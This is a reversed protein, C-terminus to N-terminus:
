SFEHRRPLSYWLGDLWELDKEIMELSTSKDAQRGFTMTGLCLNTVKLGTKGLSNVNM